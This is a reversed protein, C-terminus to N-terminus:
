IFYAVNKSTSKKINLISGDGKQARGVKQSKKKKKKRKKEKKEKKKPPTERECTKRGWQITDYLFHPM